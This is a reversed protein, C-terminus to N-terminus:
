VYEFIFGMTHKRKGNAVMSAKSSHSKPNLGYQRCAESISHFIGLIEKTKADIIMTQKAQGSKISSLSQKMKTENSRKKGTMAIRRKLLTEESQKKGYQPNNKGMKQLSLIKKTKDSRTCNWIGDGGDTMNSLTGSNLNIRGLTKIIQQELLSAEKKSLNQHLIEVKWSSKKTIREWILNRRGPKNDYARAFNKKCGIGVYFIDNTDERIHKYVYWNNMRQSVTM